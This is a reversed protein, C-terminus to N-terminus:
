PWEDGADLQRHSVVRERDIPHAVRALRHGHRHRTVAVRGFVRQLTDIDLVAVEIRHDIGHGRGSGARRQQVLFGARVDHAVPAKTVAVRARHECVGRVPHRYRHAIRAIRAGGDLSEDDDGLMEVPVAVVDQGVELTRERQMRHHRACQSNRARPEAQAAGPVGAAAEADLLGDKRVDDRHAERRPLRTARDLPDLVAELMEDGRGRGGVPHRGQFRRDGPVPRDGRQAPILEVVAARVQAGGLGRREVAGVPVHGARVPDAFRSIRLRTTRVLLVGVPSLRPKPPGCTYKASSRSMCRMACVSPSSGRSTM